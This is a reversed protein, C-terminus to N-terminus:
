QFYWQAINSSTESYYLRVWTQPRRDYVITYSSIRHNYVIFYTSIRHDYVIMTYPPLIRHLVITYSQRSRDNLVAMTFSHRKRGYEQQTYGKYAATYQLLARCTIFTM